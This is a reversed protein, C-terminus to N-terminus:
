RTVGASAEPEVVTDEDGDLEDDDDPDEDEVDDAPGSAAPAAAAIPPLGAEARADREFVEREIRLEIRKREEVDLQEEADEWDQGKEAFIDAKTSIGAGLAEVHAKVEKTPDIFGRAQSAWRHREFVYPRAMYEQVDVLDDLEGVFVADYVLRRWIPDLGQEVLVQQRMAFGMWGDLMALRGSSFTTRFFNKALLEYPFNLSAAVSRMSLEIFPAFSAGPRAPDLTDAEEGHNLYQVMGPEIREIRTGNGAVASANGEAVEHPSVSNQGGKIILGFCAEIQKAILEAEFFDDVDKARNMANALWPIGRSQDPFLPDFIHLMRDHGTADFRKVFDYGFKYGRAAEPHSKRVYYGDIQGNPLYKVGMRVTDDTRLEPPTEVREPSIIDVSLGISGRYPAESLMVFTEGYTAYSRCMLRQTAALSLRRRKDCGHASWRDCVDKLRDNIANCREKDLGYEPYVRPQRTLGTGVEYSVRGEVAAHAITNGRYLEVCNRRLTPLDHEIAEDPSMRSGLYRHDRSVNPAAGPWSFSLQDFLGLQKELLERKYRSSLRRMGWSPAIALAVNDITRGIRQLVGPGQPQDTIRKPKVRERVGSMM